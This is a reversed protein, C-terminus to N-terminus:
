WNNFIAFLGINSGSIRTTTNWAIKPLVAAVNMLKGSFALEIWWSDSFFLVPFLALFDLWSKSSALLLHHSVPHYLELFLFSYSIIRALALFM